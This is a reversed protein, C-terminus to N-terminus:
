LSDPSANRHTHTHTHTHTHLPSHKTTIERKNACVNVRPYSQGRKLKKDETDLNDIKRAYMEHRVDELKLWYPLKLGTSSCSWDLLVRMEWLFPIVRVGTYVSFILWHNTGTFCDHQRIEPFGRQIQKGSLFLWLCRALFVVAGAAQTASSMTANGGGDSGGKKEWVYLGVHYGIALVVQLALKARLSALLYIIRDVVMTLVLVILGVVLGGPLLNQSIAEALNLNSEGVLNSYLGIFLLISVFDVSITPIYLDRTMGAKLPVSTLLGYFQRAKAYYSPNRASVVSAAIDGHTLRLKSKARSVATSAATQHSVESHCDDGANSEADAGINNSTATSAADDNNNNNNNHDRDHDPLDIYVEGTPPPYLGTSKLVSQRFLIAVISFFDGLVNWFFDDRTVKGAFSPFPEPITEIGSVSLAQAVCKIALLASIYILLVEWYLPPPGPDALIAFVFASLSPLMELFSVTISFNIALVLYCILDSNHRVYLVLGETVHKAPAGRIECPEPEKGVYSHRYLFQALRVLLTKDSKEAAAEAAVAACAAVAAVSMVEPSSLRSATEKGDYFAKTAETRSIEQLGHGGELLGAVYEAAKAADGRYQRPICVHGSVRQGLRFAMRCRRFLRRDTQMLEEPNLGCERLVKKFRQAGVDEEGDGGDIASAAAAAPAVAPAEPMGSYGKLCLARLARRAEKEVETIRPPPLDFYAAPPFSVGSAGGGGGGGGGGGAKDEGSQQQQQSSAAAATTAVFPNTATDKSQLEQRTLRLMENRELYVEKAKLLGEARKKETRRMVSLGRQKSELIERFSAYVVYVHEYRDFNRRQLYLLMVLVVEFVNTQIATSTGTAADYETFGVFALLHQVSDPYDAHRAAPVNWLLHVFVAALFYTNIRKWLANGRWGLADWYRFLYLSLGLKGMRIVTIFAAAIGDIFVLFLCLMPLTYLYLRLTHDRLSTPDSVCDRTHLPEPLLEQLRAFHEAAGSDGSTTVVTHSNGAGEFREKLALLRERVTAGDDDKSSLYATLTPKNGYVELNAQRVVDYQEHFEVTRRRTRLHLCFCYLCAFCGFLETRSPYAGFYVYWRRDTTSIAEHFPGFKVSDPVGVFLFQRFLYNLVLFITSAVAAPRNCWGERLLLMIVFYPVAQFLGYYRTSVVLLCMMAIELSFRFISFDVTEKFAESVFSRAARWGRLREAIARKAAAVRDAVAKPRYFPESSGPTGDGTGGGDGAAARRASRIYGVRLTKNTGLYQRVRLNRDSVEVHTHPLCDFKAEYLLTRVRETVEVSESLGCYYASVVFEVDSNGLLMTGGEECELTVANLLMRRMNRGRWRAQVLTVLRVEEETYDAANFTEREEEEEAFAGGEEEALPSGPEASSGAGGGGGGGGGKAFYAFITLSDVYNQLSMSLYDPRSQAYYKYANAAAASVGSAASFAVSVRGADPGRRQMEQAVKLGEDAWVRGKMYLMAAAIVVADYWLDAMLSSDNGASPEEWVCTEDGTANWLCGSTDLCDNEESMAPCTWSLGVKGVGLYRALEFSFLHLSGSSTPFFFKYQAWYKLCMVVAAYCCVVVPLPRETVVGWVLFAVYSTSLVHAQASSAFFLCMLFLYPSFVIVVRQTSRWLVRWREVAKPMVYTEVPRDTNIAADGPPPVGAAATAATTKPAGIRDRVCKVQYTACAFVVWHPILHLVRQSVTTFLRYGAQYVCATKTKESGDSTSCGLLANAVESIWKGMSGFQFLYLSVLCAAAYTMTFVGFFALKGAHASTEKGTEGRGLFVAGMLLSLVLFLILYGATLITPAAFVFVAMLAAWLLLIAAKYKLLVIQGAPLSVLMFGSPMPEEESSTADSLEVEAEEAGEAAAGLLPATEPHEVEGDDTAAGRSAQRRQKSSASAAAAAAAAAATPTEGIREYIRLQWISFFLLIIFPSIEWMSDFPKQVLLSRDLKGLHDPVGSDKCYVNFGYLFLTVVMEYCVLVSWYRRAIGPSVSFLIFILILSAQILDVHLCGVVVLILLSVYQARELFARTIVQVWRAQATPQACRAAGGGHRHPQEAAAAAAAAQPSVEHSLDSIKITSAVLFMLCFHSALALPSGTTKTLGSDEMQGSHPVCEKFTACLHVASWLLAFPLVRKVLYVKWHPRVILTYLFCFLLLIWVVSLYCPDLITTLGMVVALMHPSYRRIASVVFRLGSMGQAAVARGAGGDGAVSGVESMRGDTLVAFSDTLAPEVRPPPPPQPSQAAAAVEEEAACGRTDPSGDETYTMSPSEVPVDELPIDMSSRCGGIGKEEEAMPMSPPLATHNVTPLRCGGDLSGVSVGSDAAAAAAAVVDSDEEGDGITSPPPVGVVPPNLETHIASLHHQAVKISAGTFCEWCAFCLCLLMIVHAGFLRGDYTDFFPRNVRKVGVWDLTYAHSPDTMFSKTFYLQAFFQVASVCVTLVWIAAAIRKLAVPRLLRLGAEAPKQEQVPRTLHHVLSPGVWFFIMGMFLLVFPSAVARPWVIVSTCSLALMLAASVRPTPASAVRGPALAAKQADARQRRASYFFVSTSRVVPVKAGDHGAAYRHGTHPDTVVRGKAHMVLHLLSAVLVVLSTITFRYFDDGAGLGFGNAVPSGEWPPNDVSKTVVLFGVHVLSFLAALACIISLPCQRVWLRCRASTTSTSRYVYLDHSVNHLFFLLAYTLTAYSPAVVCSALLSLSFLTQTVLLSAWAM